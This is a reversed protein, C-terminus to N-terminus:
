STYSKTLLGLNSVTLNEPHTEGIETSCKKWWLVLSREKIDKSKLSRLSKVSFLPPSPPHNKFPYM